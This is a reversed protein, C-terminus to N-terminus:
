RVERARESKRVRARYSEARESELERARLERAREGRGGEGPTQIPCTDKRSSRPAHHAHLQRLRADSADVHTVVWRVCTSLLM